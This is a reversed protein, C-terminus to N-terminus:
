EDMVDIAKDPLHRENIYKASLEAAAKIAPQTYRIGHHNEYREKLGMLIKTTEEVSPEVVDVKQFRRLLARDKEFVNKFE